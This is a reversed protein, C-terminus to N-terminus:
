VGAAGDWWYGRRTVLLLAFPNRNIAHLGVLGTWRTCLAGEEDDVVNEAEEWLGELTSVNERHAVLLVLVLHEHWTLCRHQLVWIAM